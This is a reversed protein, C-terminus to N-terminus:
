SETQIRAAEELKEEAATASIGEMTFYFTAGKDLEAYAWIDGGHKRIIRRVTALGVGTGEFEEARHLRQFVGFLKAVYKMDFGAGNDRVFVATRGDIETVGAEIVAPTRQRTFKIANSLLNQFVNLMLTRDCNLTPLPGIKWEIARGEWDPKLMARTEEVLQTLDTPTLKLGGRGCRSLNLLDDVMQGMRTASQQIKEVCNRADSNMQDAYETCLIGSFGHIHRLPARLDHSVSYSFSEM